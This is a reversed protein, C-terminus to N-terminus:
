NCARKGKESRSCERGTTKPKRSRAQFRQPSKFWRLALKLEELSESLPGSITLMSRNTSPCMLAIKQITPMWERKGRNPMSHIPAGRAARGRLMTIMWKILPGKKEKEM